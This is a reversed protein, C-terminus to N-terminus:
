CVGDENAWGVSGSLLPKRYYDEIVGIIEAPAMNHTWAKSEALITLGIADEPNDIGLRRLVNKSVIIANENSPDDNVFNRGALLKIDFFPLFREDIGGNTDTGIFESGTTLQLGVGNPLNDGPVSS